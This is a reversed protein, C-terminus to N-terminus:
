EKVVEAWRDFASVYRLPMTQDDELRVRFYAVTPPGPSLPGEYWRDIIEVVELRRGEWIVWAPRERTKHGEHCVVQIDTLKMLPQKL